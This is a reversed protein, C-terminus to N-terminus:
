EAPRNSAVVKREVSPWEDANRDSATATARRGGGVRDVVLRTSVRPPTSARDDDFRGSSTLSAVLACSCQTGHEIVVVAIGVAVFVVVVVVMPTDLMVVVVRAHVVVVVVHVLRSGVLM